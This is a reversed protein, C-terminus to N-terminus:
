RQHGVATKIQVQRGPLCTTYGAPETSDSADVRKVRYTRMRYCTHDFASLLTGPPLKIEYVTSYINGDPEPNLKLPTSLRFQRQQKREISFQRAHTTPAVTFPSATGLPSQGADAALACLTAATVLALVLLVTRM